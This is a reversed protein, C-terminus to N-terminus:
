YPGNLENDSQWLGHWVKNGNIYYVHEGHIISRDNGSYIYFGEAPAAILQDVQSLDVSNATTDTELLLLSNRSGWLSVRAGDDEPDTEIGWEEMPMAFQYRGDTNLVALAKYDFEVPTYAQEKVISTLEQPEAPNTVDFLSIKMGQSVPPAIPEEGTSPIDQASIQQGIGLLYGNEMPHLYSSFGPIELSGAIFPADPVSFDIVYLPDIREFTVVYGKDGIFRVAYVDEGPKGIAEPQEKSPLRAALELDSGNQRLVSLQHYPESQSYDSSLVRLLGQEEDLRLHPSAQWGMQGHVSGFAQYSLDELAIKHFGTRDELDSALYLNQESMYLMSSYASLCISQIDEIQQLNIRTVTVIQALGDSETADAPIFCNEPEVLSSEMGNVSMKPMIETMPTNIIKLYNQLMVEKSGEGEELGEVHPVHTTVLFLQNDVRRSSMLWGELEINAEMEINDAHSTDFVNLLVRSEPEQWPLISIERLSYYPQDSAIVALKDDSLYLGDINVDQASLRLNELATLSFDANRQLVRVQASQEEDTWHPYTALFMLDGNYEVRDAEDVGQEQTNTTSFGRSVTPMAIPQAAGDTAELLEGNLTASYIGNWLFQSVKATGAQALPGNFAMVQNVEPAETIQPAEPVSDVTDDSCSLLVSTSILMSTVLVSKRMPNRLVSKRM